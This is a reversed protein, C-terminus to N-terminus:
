MLAGALGFVIVIAYLGLIVIMLIGMFKFMSKLNELSTTLAQADKRAIADRANTAFKFLYWTPFFYFVGILLYIVSFFGGSIGMPAGLEGLLAGAFLGVVVILGIMVFGVIALFRGWTGSEKLYGAAEPTVNLSGQPLSSDLPETM